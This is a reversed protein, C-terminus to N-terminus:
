RTTIGYHYATCTMIFGEPDLELDISTIRYIESITTSSELVRVCDGPQLWPVAVASFSVERVRRIMDNGMQDAALQCKANSDLESVGVILVKEDPIGFNARNSSLYTATFKEKPDTLSNPDEGGNVKIRGYVNRRTIKYPMSFLDEGEKFVWAAFVYDVEVTAGDPIASTATRAITGLVYEMTYDTTRVYTILGNSSKVIESSSVIPKNSLNVATTGTLAVQDPVLPKPQRDTPYYFSAKGNELIVVEFGSVKMCWEIADAYSENEFTISAVTIGTPETTILDLTWGAKVLLDSVVAEVTQNTYTLRFQDVASDYVWKDILRWGDDRCSLSVMYDASGLSPQVNLTVDDIQGKFTDVLDSGYGMQITFDRGPMIVGKWENEIFGEVASRDPSYYGADVPNNPNVNPWEIDALQALAAGDRGIRCNSVQLPLDTTSFRVIIGGSDESSGWLNQGDWTLGTYGTQPGVFSEITQGNAPDVKYITDSIGAVWLHSGDWAVGSVRIPMTYTAVIVGDSKNVKYLKGAGLSSDGIWLYPGSPAAIGNIQTAGTPNPFNIIRTKTSIRWAKIGPNVHTDPHTVWILDDDDGDIECGDPFDDVTWSDYQAGNEDLIYITDLVGDSAFLRQDSFRWGLGSVENSPFSKSVQGAQSGARFTVVAKPADAGIMSRSKLLTKITTPITQM